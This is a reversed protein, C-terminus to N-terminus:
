IPIEVVCPLQITFTTGQGYESEVKIYGGMMQCFRQALALGIGAGGYKRTTSSDAQTFAQFLQSQQVPTMGIGTDAVQFTIWSPLEHREVTLTIQGRETFKNANSLVNFLCQRVKTLDAHMTGIDPPCNVILTQDNAQMLPSLTALVDQVMSAIEFTVLHLEMQGSQLKSLNLIEDILGLLHRGSGHIKQLDSCLEVSGLAEIEEQLIESYGIIANLPTRLEHSMNALFESKVRNAAEADAKARKLEKEAQKRESIDRFMGTFFSHHGLKAETVTAELLIKSGDAHRGIVECQKMSLLKDLLTASDMVEVHPWELLHHMSKGMVNDITYGFIGQVSPNATVIALDPQTFTIIADTATKIMADSRTIASELAAMVQNYCAAIRGVETFPEVPVRLSLDQTQTQSEMIQFLDYVETKAEHESVNLGMQEEDASVRLPFRRNIVLLLLFTVGFAWAFCTIVGVLQVLLQRYGSLGTGILDPQGFLAVAMTGWIGAGLHVPIADVADDIRWYELLTSTWVVVAGGIAGIILAETTTVIHCAATIAVLGALVGNILLEVEPIKRQQWGIALSSLMGAVGALVTRVIIGPVQDNFDLLSGSNFGLWGIWLLMTGLVSLPLNSGHIKRARGQPPFRGSRPGIILVTALSVWGGVSHVVTSGAFDIFGLQKLWGGIDQNWAWHGFCPYILGSILVTIILYARFRLREAVAGSVITTATSCFMAQFIFWAALEPAFELDVLFHDTGIWGAWSAGFMLAYGFTWFLALSLGVDSLNKIAVNISNKSRTLGSELCMFGPQMLFVLGACILLWQTDM